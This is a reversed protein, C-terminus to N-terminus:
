NNTNEYFEEIQNKRIQIESTIIGIALCIFGIAICIGMIILTRKDYEM